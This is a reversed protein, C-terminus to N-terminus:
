SVHSPLIDKFSHESLNPTISMVTVNRGIQRHWIGKPVVFVSGSRITSVEKNGNILLTIDVEGELIYLLEDANPHLEWPSDGSFRGAYVASDDFDFLKQFAAKDEEFTKVEGATIGILSELINRSETM